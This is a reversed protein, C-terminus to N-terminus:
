RGTAALGPKAATGILRELVRLVLIVADDQPEGMHAEGVAQDICEATATADLDVCTGVLTTLEEIGFRERRARIQSVGDTYFVVSDSPM